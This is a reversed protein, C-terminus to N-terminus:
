EYLSRKMRRILSIKGLPIKLIEDDPSKKEQGKRLCLVTEGHAKELSDVYCLLKEQQALGGKEAPKVYHLEVPCHAAVAQKAVATKGV